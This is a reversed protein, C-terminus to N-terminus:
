RTAAADRRHALAAFTLTMALKRLERYVLVVSAMALCTIWQDLAVPVTGFALNLFTGNVAAVQLLASLAVAAWLWPNVFLKKFASTTESQANFCQFLHAMVLVTFGATRATALDGPGAGVHRQTLLKALVCLTLAM